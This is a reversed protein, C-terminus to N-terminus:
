RNSTTWSEPGSKRRVTSATAAFAVEGNNAVSISLEARGDGVTEPEKFLPKKEVKGTAVDLLHIAVDGQELETFLIERPSDLPDLRSDVKQRRNLNKPQGGSAAVTYIDGGTSGFDSMLGGIFAIQSGDPSLSPVALQLGHMEGTVTRPDLVVRPQSGAAAPQLYLKAVWWNNEGPPPAATYVVSQSDASWDYEYIHLNEPTIFKLDGGDISFTALRQIETVMQLDIVGEPVRQASTAGSARTSNAVYLFSISKGDPSWNLDEVNGKLTGVQRATGTSANIVFIQDQSTKEPIGCDSLAALSKGDPSWVADTTSCDKDAPGASLTVKARGGHLTLLEIRAGLKGQSGYAVTTGDPSIAVGRIPVARHGGMKQLLAPDVKSDLGIADPQTPAPASPQQAIGFPVFSLLAAAFLIRLAALPIAMLPLPLM